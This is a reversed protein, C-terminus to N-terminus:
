DEIIGVRLQALRINIWEQAATGFGHGDHRYRVRIQIYRAQVPNGNNQAAIDVEFWRFSTIENIFNFEAVKTGNTRPDAGIPTDAVWVEGVGISYIIATSSSGAPFFEFSVIDRTEGLDISFFHARMGIPNLENFHGHASSSWGEDQGSQWDGYDFGFHSQFTAASRGFSWINDWVANGNVLVSPEGNRTDWCCALICNETLSAFHPRVRFTITVTGSGAANTVSIADSHTFSNAVVGTFTYGTEATLTVVARYNTLFVFTGAFAEGAEDQWVITGSFQAENIPPTLPSAGLVPVPVLTTLDLATVVTDGITEPFVITVTATTGSGATTVSDADDHAFANTAIGDFTFGSRATLTLVATYIQEGTFTGSVAPQWEITGTFQDQGAFTTQPALGTVPVAVLNTLDLNNSVLAPPLTAPDVYLAVTFEASSPQIWGGGQINSSTRETVSLIRIQVYRANVRQGGNMTTFDISQWHLYRNTTNGPNVAEFSGTGLRTIGPLRPDIGIPVTDSIFIEYVLIAPQQNLHTGNNFPFHTLGAIERVKGLDFTIFHAAPLGITQFAQYHGQGAFDGIAGTFNAMELLEDMYDGSRDGWSVIWAHNAGFTGDILNDKTRPPNNDSHHCCVRVTLGHEATMRYRFITPKFEIRVVGSNAPNIIAYRDQTPNFSFANVGVGNFTFGATATLTVVATYAVGARFTTGDFPAAGAYWAVTGTFQTQAAIATPPVVNHVPLELLGSLDLASVITPAAPFTLTVLLEASNFAINSAGTHIFTGTFGDFTFGSRATLTLYATYVIGSQFAGTVPTTDDYWDITGTFQVGTINEQPTLGTAPVMILASLDVEDVIAPGVTAPFVIVLTGLAPNFNISDAGAHTFSATTLGTFTYGERATLAIRAEYIVGGEFVAGAFLAGATWWEITGTFQERNIVARQPAEGDVPANIVGTLNLDTVVTPLPTDSLDPSCALFMLSMATIVFVVAFFSKKKKMISM